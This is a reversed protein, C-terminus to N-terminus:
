EPEILGYNGDKRKYIVNVEETEANSFVYFNHGLLNMQMIAEEVPMPKIAFRKTRVIEPEREEEYYCPDAGAVPGRLSQGKNRKNFLRTRYKSVQKELKEEVLDIAVYMDSNEEEGRLIFGNIPMTVEVRHRDREVSLTVVAEPDGEFFKDLKGLRKAVYEKLAESLQINKGRIQFKM